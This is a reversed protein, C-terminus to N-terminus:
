GKRLCDLVYNKIATEWSDNVLLYPKLLEIFKKRSEGTRLSDIRLNHIADQLDTFPYNVIESFSGYELLRRVKFERSFTQPDGDWFLRNKAKQM